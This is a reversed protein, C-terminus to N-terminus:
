SVMLFLAVGVGELSRLHVGGDDWVDVVWGPASVFRLFCLALAGFVCDM